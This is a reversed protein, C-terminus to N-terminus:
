GKNFYKSFENDLRARKSTLDFTQTIEGAVTQKTMTVPDEFSFSSESEDFFPITAYLDSDVMDDSGSPSKHISWNRILREEQLNLMETRLEEDKYSVMTEKSKNLILMSRYTYYAKNKDSVNRFSYPFVPYGKRQLLKIHSDLQACDDPIIWNVDYRKCLNEWGDDNSPEFLANIDYGVPFVKHWLRIIKGRYKTKVTLVSQCDSIGGDFGISCPSQKWEYQQALNTSFYSEVNEFEFFNNKVQTFDADYEQNFLNIKGQREANLRENSVFQAYRKEEDTEGNAIKWTFWIRTFDTTGNEDPDFLTYFVNQKGNPTSSIVTKGNTDATTPLCVTLYYTMPDIADSPELFAIEDIFLISFGFQRVKKTPPLSRIVSGNKWTMQETNDPTGINRTFFDNEYLYKNKGSQFYRAMYVDGLRIMDRINSLLKKAALDEKSILGIETFKEISNKPMRNYFTAWFAILSSITSKGLRRAMCFGTKQQSLICDIAFAQYPRLRIGLMFYAFVVPHWRAYKIRFGIADDNFKARLWELNFYGFYTDYYESPIGNYLSKDVFATYPYDPLSSNRVM